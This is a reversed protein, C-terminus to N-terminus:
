RFERSCFLAFHATRLVSVVSRNVLQQQAETLCEGVILMPALAFDLTANRCDCDERRM